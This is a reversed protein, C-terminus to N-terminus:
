AGSLCGAAWADVTRNPPGGRGLGGNLAWARAEGVGGRVPAMVGLAAWAAAERPM